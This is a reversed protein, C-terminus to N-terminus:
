ISFFFDTSYFGPLKTGCSKEYGLSFYKMRSNSRVFCAESNSPELKLPFYKNVAPMENEQNLYMPFSKIGYKESAHSNSNLMGYVLVSRLTNMSEDFFAKFSNM